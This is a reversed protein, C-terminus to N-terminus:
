ARLLEAIVGALVDRWEVLAGRDEETEDDGYEEDPDFGLQQTVAPKMDVDETPAVPPPAAFSISFAADQPQEQDEDDSTSSVVDVEEFDDDEEEEDDDEDMEVGESPTTADTISASDERAGEEMDLLAPKDEESMTAEGEVKMSPEMVEGLPNYQMRAKSPLGLAVALATRIEETLSTLRARDTFTVSGGSGTSPSVKREVGEVGARSVGRASDWEEGRLVTVWARDWRRLTTWLEPLSNADLDYNEIAEPLRSTLNLYYSM